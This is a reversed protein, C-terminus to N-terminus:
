DNLLKMEFRARLNDDAELDALLEGIGPNRAILEPHRPCARRAKLADGLYRASSVGRLMTM